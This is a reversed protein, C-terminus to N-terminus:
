YRMIFYNAKSTVANGGGSWNFPRIGVHTAVFATMDYRACNAIQTWTTPEAGPAATSYYAAWSRIGDTTLKVWAYPNAIGTKYGGLLTSGVYYGGERFVGVDFSALAGFSGVFLGTYDSTGTIDLYCVIELPPRYMAMPLTAYCVSAGTGADKTVILSTTETISCNAPVVDSWDSARASNNLADYYGQRAVGSVTILRGGEVAYPAAPAALGGGDGTVLGAVWAAGLYHRPRADTTNTYWHGEQPNGLGDGSSDWKNAQLYALAAADGTAGAGSFEGLYNPSGHLLQAM